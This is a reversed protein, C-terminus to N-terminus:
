RSFENSSMTPKLFPVNDMFYQVCADFQKESRINVFELDDVEVNWNLVQLIMPYSMVAFRLNAMQNPNDPSKILM